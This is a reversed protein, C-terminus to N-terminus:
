RASNRSLEERKRAAKVEREIRKKAADLQGIPLAFLRDREAKDVHALTGWVRLESPEPHLTIRTM